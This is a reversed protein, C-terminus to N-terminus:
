RGEVIVGVIVRGLVPAATRGDVRGLMTPRGFTVPGPVPMVLRGAIVVRGAV